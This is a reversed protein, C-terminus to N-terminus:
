TRIYDFVYCQIDLPMEQAQGKVANANEARGLHQVRVEGPDPAHANSGDPVGPDAHRPRVM